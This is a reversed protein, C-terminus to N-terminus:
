PFARRAVNGVLQGPAPPNQQNFSVILSAPDASPNHWLDM